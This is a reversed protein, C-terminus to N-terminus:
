FKKLVKFNVVYLAILPHKFYEFIKNNNRVQINLILNIRRRFISCLKKTNKTSVEFLNVAEFTSDWMKIINKSTNNETDKHIYLCKNIEKFRKVYYLMLVWLLWDDAGNKNLFNKTWEVPISKKRIIVMGPSPILNGIYFFYKISNLCKMQKDSSFILKKHKNKDEIYGNSVCADYNFISELQFKYFYKNIEDDQDLFHVYNGTAKKLGVIRSKHIGENKKNYIIKIKLNKQSVLPYKLKEKPYDNVIIWEFDYLPAENCAQKIVFALHVLYKNGKYVPTIISVDM